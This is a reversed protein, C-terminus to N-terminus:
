RRELGFEKTYVFQTKGNKAIWGGTGDSAFCLRYRGDDDLDVGSLCGKWTSPVPITNLEIAFVRTREDMEDL